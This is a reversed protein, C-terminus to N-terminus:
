GHIKKYAAAIVGIGIPGTLLTGVMVMGGISNLIGVLVILVLHMWFNNEVVLDKSKTLAEMVGLNEDKALLVSYMLFIIAIFGPIVLLFFGITIIIGTVLTVLFIPWFNDFSFIEEFAINEGRMKRVFGYMYNVTFVMGIALVPLGIIFVSLMAGVATILGTVVFGGLFFPIDSVFMEWSTKFLEVFDFEASVTSSEKKDMESM